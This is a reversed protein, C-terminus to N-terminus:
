GPKRLPPVEVVVIDETPSVDACGLESQAIVLQLEHRSTAHALLERALGVACVYLSGSPRAPMTAFVDDPQLRGQLAAPVSDPSIAAAELEVLYKKRLTALTMHPPPAKGPFVFVLAADLAAMGSNRAIVHLPRADRVALRIGAVDGAVDITDCDIPAADYPAACLGLKGRPVGELVFTSDARVPATAGYHLAGPGTHAIVNIQTASRGGLTVQGSIRYTRHAVLTVHRAVEVLDSRLAGKGAVIIGRARPLTFRGAQDTRTRVSPSFSLPAAAHASDARIWPAAVVEADPVPQGADDVVSGAVDVRTPDTLRVDGGPVHGIAIAVDDAAAVDGLRWRAQADERELTQLDVTGLRKAVPRWTAVLERIRAIDAATARSFLVNITYLTARLQSRARRRLGFRATARESAAIAADWRQARSADRTRLLDIDGQLDDQPFAAVAQVAPELEVPADQALAIRLVAQIAVDDCRTALSKIERFTTAVDALGAADIQSKDVNLMRARLGLARACAADAAALGATEARHGGDRADRYLAFAAALPQDIVAALHPVPARECLKPDVLLSATGELGHPAGDAEVLQAAVAFRALVSDLCALRTNRLVPEAHCADERVARWSAIDGALLDAAAPNTRRIAAARETSWAVEPALGPAQCDSLPTTDHRTALLAGAGGVVVAAALGVLRRRRLLARELAGLLADMSPWRAAPDRALGRRVIARVQRPLADVADASPGALAAQKLEALTDGRYPRVGALAEWLAVCFAFQDSATGVTGGTWQEPAMYAPTGLFAGTQTRVPESAPADPPIVPAADDSTACSLGFDTVVIKGGRSRLVNSPKFDRHVLGAAHAAALGRGAAIFAAVIDRWGPHARTWWEKLTEGDVLEMAVFDNGEASGVDFVTIVNPHSLRAMARAERLLRTRAEADRAHLVKVAVRRELEPDFAAHVTGMGGSGLMSELRFRGLASVVPTAPPRAAAGPATATQEAAAITAALEDESPPPM